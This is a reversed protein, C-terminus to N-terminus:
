QKACLGNMLISIITNIRTTDIMPDNIALDIVIGRQAIIIIYVVMEVDKSIDSSFENKEIGYHVIERIIEKESAVFKRIAEMPRYFSFNNNEFIEQKLLRYLNIKSKIKDFSVAFYARLKDSALTEQDVAQRVAKLIESAEKELVDEFIKDKSKYYYYLTSKGRGMNKAIDEMTTKQFGYQQFLTHAVSIVECKIKDEKSTVETFM